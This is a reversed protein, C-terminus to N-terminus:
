ICWRYTEHKALREVM